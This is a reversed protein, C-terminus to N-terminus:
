DMGLIGSCSAFVFQGSSTVTKFVEGNVKITCTIEATEMGTSANITLFDGIDADFDKSWPLTIDEQAMGGSPPTYTVSANTGTGTVEYTVTNGAFSPQGPRDVTLPDGSLMASILPLGFFLCCCALAILTVLILINRTRNNSQKQM